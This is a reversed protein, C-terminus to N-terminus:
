EKKELGDVRVDYVNRVLDQVDEGRYFDEAWKVGECASACERAERTGLDTLYGVVDVVRFDSEGNKPRQVFAYHLRDIAMAEQRGQFALESRIGEGFRIDCLPDVILLAWRGPGLRPSEM